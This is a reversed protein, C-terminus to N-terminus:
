IKTATVLREVKSQYTKSNHSLVNDKASRIRLSLIYRVEENGNENLLALLTFGEM